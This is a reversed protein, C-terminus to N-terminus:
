AGARNLLPESETAVKAPAVGPGPVRCQLSLNVIKGDGAAIDSVLSERPPFLGKKVTYRYPKQAALTPVFKNGLIETTL